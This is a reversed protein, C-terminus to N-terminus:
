SETVTVESDAASPTTCCLSDPSSCGLSRSSYESGQNRERQVKDYAARRMPNFADAPAGLVNLIAARLAAANGNRVLFGTRGDDVCEAMGGTDSAIVIPHHGDRV